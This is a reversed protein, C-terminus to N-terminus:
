SLILELPPQQAPPGPYTSAYRQRLTELLRKGIMEVKYNSPEGQFANDEEIFESVLKGITRNGISTVGTFMVGM